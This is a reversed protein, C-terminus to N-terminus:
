PPRGAAADPTGYVGMQPCGALLLPFRTDLTHLAETTGANYLWDKRRRNGGECPYGTAQNSRKDTLRCVRAIEKPM